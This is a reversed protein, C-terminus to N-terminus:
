QTGGGRNYQRLEPERQQRQVLRPRLAHKPIRQAKPLAHRGM